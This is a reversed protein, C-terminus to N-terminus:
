TQYNIKRSYYGVPLIFYFTEPTSFSLKNASASLMWAAGVTGLKYPRSTDRRNNVVIKLFDMKLLNEMKM